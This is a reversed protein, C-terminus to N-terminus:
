VQASLGPFFFVPFFATFVLTGPSLLARSSPSTQGQVAGQTDQSTLAHEFSPLGSKILPQEAM